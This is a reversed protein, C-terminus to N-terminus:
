EVTEEIVYMKKGCKPCTQAARRKKKKLKSKFFKYGGELLLWTAIYEQYGCVECELLNTPDEGWYNKFAPERKKSKMVLLSVLSM